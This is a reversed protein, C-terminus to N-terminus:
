KRPGALRRYMEFAEDIKKKEEATAMSDIKKMLSEVRDLEDKTLPNRSQGPNRATLFAYEERTLCRLVIEKAERQLRTFREREDSPLRALAARLESALPDDDQYDQYALGTGGSSPKQLWSAPPFPTAPTQGGKRALSFEAAHPEYTLSTSLGLGPRTPSSLQSVCYRFVMLVPLIVLWREWGTGRKTREGALPPSVRSPSQRPVRGPETPPRSPERFLPAVPEGAPRNEAAPEAILLAGCDCFMTGEANSHGCKPCTRM